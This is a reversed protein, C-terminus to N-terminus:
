KDLLRIEEQNHQKKKKKMGTEKLTMKLPVIVKYRAKQSKEMM